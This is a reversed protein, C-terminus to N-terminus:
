GPGNCSGGSSLIMVECGVPCYEYTVEKFSAISFKSYQFISHLYKISGLAAVAALPM